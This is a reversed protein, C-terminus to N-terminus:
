LMTLWACNESTDYVIMNQWFQRKFIFRRLANLIDAESCQTQNGISHKIHCPDKSPIIWVGYFHGVFGKPDRIWPEAIRAPYKVNGRSKPLTFFLISNLTFSLCLRLLCLLFLHRSERIKTLIHIWLFPNNSIPIGACTCTHKYCVSRHLAVVAIRKPARVDSDLPKRISILPTCQAICWVQEHVARCKGIGPLPFATM